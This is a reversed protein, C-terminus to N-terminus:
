VMEPAPSNYYVIQWNPDNLLYKYLTQTTLESHTLVDFKENTTNWYWKAVRNVCIEKNKAEVYRCFWKIGTLWTLLKGFINLVDYKQGIDSLAEQKLDEKDEKILNIKRFIIQNNNPNWDALRVFKQQEIIEILNTDDNLIMAVHYWLVQELKRFIFRYIQHWITPSQMLFKVCKAEFRNSDSLIVDGVQPVYNNNLADM